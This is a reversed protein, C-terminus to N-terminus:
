NIFMLNGLIDKEKVIRICFGGIIQESFWKRMSDHTYDECNRFEPRNM